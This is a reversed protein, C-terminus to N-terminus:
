FPTTSFYGNELAWDVVEQASLSVDSAYAAVNEFATDTVYYTGIDDVYCRAQGKSNTYYNFAGGVIENLREEKLEERAMRKDEM